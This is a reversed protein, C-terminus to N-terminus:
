YSLEEGDKEGDIYNCTSQGITEIGNKKGNKYNTYRDSRREVGDKLGDKYDCYVNEHTTCVARGNRKGDVYSVKFTLGDITEIQSTM